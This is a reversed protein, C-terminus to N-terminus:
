IHSSPFKILQYISNILSITHKKGNQNNKLAVIRATFKLIIKTEFKTYIVGSNFLFCEFGINPIGPIKLLTKTVLDDHKWDSVQLM